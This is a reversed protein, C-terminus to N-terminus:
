QLPFIVLNCPMLIPPLTDTDLKSKTHKCVHVAHVTADNCCASIYFEGCGALIQLPDGCKKSSSGFFFSVKM